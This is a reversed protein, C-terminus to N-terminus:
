DFVYGLPYCKWDDCPNIIMKQNTANYRKNYYRTHVSGVKGLDFSMTRVALPEVFDYGLVQEKFSEYHLTQAAGHNLTIGRLKIDNAMTNVYPNGEGRIYKLAYQKAGGCYFETIRGKSAYEDNLQGLFNGLEM